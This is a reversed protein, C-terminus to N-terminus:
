SLSYILGALIFLQGGVIGALVLFRVLRWADRPRGYALGVTRRM